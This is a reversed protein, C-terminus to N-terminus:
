FIDNKCIKTILQVPMMSSYINETTPRHRSPRATYNVIDYILNDFDNNHLHTKHAEVAPDVNGQTHVCTHTIYETLTIYYVLETVNHNCSCIEFSAKLIVVLHVLSGLLIPPSLISLALSLSLTCLLYLCDLHRIFSSLFILLPSYCTLPFLVSM